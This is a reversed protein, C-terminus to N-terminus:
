ASVLLLVHLLLLRRLYAFRRQTRSAHVYLVRTRLATDRTRIPIAYRYVRRGVKVLHNVAIRPLTHEVMVCECAFRRLYMRCVERCITTWQIIGHNLQYNSSGPVRDDEARGSVFDWRSGFVEEDNQSYRPSFISFIDRISSMM